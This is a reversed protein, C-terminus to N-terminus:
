ETPTQEPAPASPEQSQTAPEQEQEPKPRPKAKVAKPKAPAPATKQPKMQEQLGKMDDALKNIAQEMGVVKSMSHEELSLVDEMKKEISPEAAKMILVTAMVTLASVIIILLLTQAPTLIRVKKREAHMEDHSPMEPAIAKTTEEFPRAQPKEAKVVPAPAPKPKPEPPKPIERPKAPTISDLDFEDAAEAPKKQRPTETLPEPSKKTEMPLPPVIFNKTEETAPTKSPSKSVLSELDVEDQGADDQFNDKKAMM